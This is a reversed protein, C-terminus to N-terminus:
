SMSMFIPEAQRKYVDLRTYSVPTNMEKIGCISKQLKALERQTMLAEKKGLKELSGDETMAEMDKLRKTSQKITKFNTLM